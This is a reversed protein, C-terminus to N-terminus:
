GVYKIYDVKAAEEGTVGDPRWPAEGNAECAVKLFKYCLSHTIEDPIMPSSDLIGRRVALLSGGAIPFRTESTQRLLFAPFLMKSDPPYFEGLKEIRM